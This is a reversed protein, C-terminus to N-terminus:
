RESPASLCPLWRHHVRHPSSRRGIGLLRSSRLAQPPPLSPPLPQSERKRGVLRGCLASHACQRRVRCRRACRLSQPSILREGLPRFGQERRSRSMRRSLQLNYCPLMCYLLAFASSPVSLIQSVHVPLLTQPPQITWASFPQVHTHAHSRLRAFFPSSPSPALESLAQPDQSYRRLPSSTLPRTKWLIRRRLTCVARKSGQVREM